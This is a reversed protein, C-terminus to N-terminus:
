GRPNVKGTEWLTNLAESRLLLEEGSIEVRYVGEINYGVKYLRIIFNTNIYFEKIKEICDEQYLNLYNLKVEEVKILAVSIRWTGFNM